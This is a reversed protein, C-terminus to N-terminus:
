QTSFILFLPTPPSQSSNGKYLALKQIFTKRKAENYLTMVFRGNDGASKIDSFTIIPKQTKQFAKLFFEPAFEATMILFFLPLIGLIMVPIRRLRLLRLFALLPIGFMLVLIIKIGMPTIWLIEPIETVETVRLLRGLQLHYVDFVSYLLIIPIATVLSQWKSNHTILNFYYYLYLVLPIELRWAPLLAM